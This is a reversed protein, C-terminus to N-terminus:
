GVQDVVAWSIRTGAVIEALQRFDVPKRVHGTAGLEYGVAIEPQDKFTIMMVVPVAKTRSDARIRRLVELGPMRPLKLDLLVLAPLESADRTSYPGTAFLYDLAAEGFETVVLENLIRCKEFTRRTFEADIPNDEVLLIAKPTM